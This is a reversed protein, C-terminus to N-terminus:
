SWGVEFDGGVGWEGGGVKKPPLSLFIAKLNRGPFNGKEPYSCSGFQKEFEPSFCSVM